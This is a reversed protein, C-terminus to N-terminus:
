TNWSGEYAQLTRTQLRRQSRLSREAGFLTISLRESQTVRLLDQLSCDVGVIVAGPRTLRKAELYYTLNGPKDADIFILDFQEESPVSWGFDGDRDAIFGDISTSMSYILM